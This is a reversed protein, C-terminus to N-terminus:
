AAGKRALHFNQTPQLGIDHHTVVVAMGGSVCHQHVAAVLKATHATDLATAPEDLLWLKTPHLVLRTLALRRKQGASLCRVPQELLGELGFTSLCEEPSNMTSVMRLGHDGGGRPPLDPPPSGCPASDSDAGWRVEGRFPSSGWRRHGRLVRWYNLMERVTLEPKVAEQHGIFQLKEKYDEGIPAGNWRMEGEAVPLLGALMRLLSTKGSGNAGTVMLLDGQNLAFSVDRFIAKGNRRCLLSHVSFQAADGM